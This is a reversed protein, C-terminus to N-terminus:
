SAIERSKILYYALIGYALLYGALPLLNDVVLQGVAINFGEKLYDTLFFRNVDPIIRAFFQLVFRFAHDYLTAVQATPTPDLNGAISTQTLVRIASEAPGGGLEKNEALNQIYSGFMGTLFFFMTCLFSIVGSLYTSCAVALGIVLCLQCWLGASGKFFNLAPSQDAAVFYLDPRAFGLYQSPSECRVVVRLPPRPEGRQEWTQLREIDRELSALYDDDSKTRDGKAKLEDYERRLDALSALQNKFIATPVDISDTHYDAIERSPPEFLGYREAVYADADGPRSSRDQDSAERRTPNWRWTQFTLKCVVGRNEEGKYLRFIDFSFECPVTGARRALDAPPSRFYWEARQRPQRSGAIYGRYEWERGVKTGTPDAMPGDGDWFTLEEGYVPVRAHMSERFAEEDVGRYVYILSLLTMAALILTMLLTYGVFRGLVIEFREVPKTVITHITQSRVDAPISFAALLGATFLLLPTMTWYVVSVYNRVQHEPKHPVFWGAFLFIVLLASFVWLVRRRIAEKFSLEALAWIRRGSLRSLGQFFPLTVAALACLGGTLGAWDAASQIGKPGKTEEVAVADEGRVAERLRLGGYAAYAGLAVVLLLVFPPSKWSWGTTNVAPPPYGFARRLVDVVAWFVLAFAALGGVVWVWSLVATPL